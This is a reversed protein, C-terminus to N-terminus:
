YIIIPTGMKTMKWVSEIDESRLRVCGHTVSVGILREFVTGHIFYGNGFGIAYDGMAEPDFREDADAEPIPEGEEIFAWDPKRWWPNALRSDVRFLGKPTDFRWYRGDGTDILEAGTGTSCLAEYLVSDVTRVYLRNTHTDIVLYVSRPKEVNVPPALTDGTPLCSSRPSALKQRAEIALSNMTPPSEEWQFGISPHITLLVLVAAIITLLVIRKM